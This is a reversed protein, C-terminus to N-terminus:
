REERPVNDPQPAVTQWGGPCEKVYPYYGHTRACYYWNGSAQPAPAAAGSDDREIYETPGDASREAPPPYYYPPYYYPPYYYPGPYYGPGFWFPDVIIGIGVHGHGYYGGHGGHGYGGHGSYGGHGGHGGGHGGDGMSMGSMGALFMGLLLALWRRPKYM